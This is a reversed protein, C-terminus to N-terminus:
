GTAVRLLDALTFAGRRAAPLSVADSGPRWGPQRELFGSPDGELLGILVEAVIRGGVPGLRASRGHM